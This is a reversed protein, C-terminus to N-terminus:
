YEDRDYRGHTGRRRRGSEDRGVGGRRDDRRPERQRESNVRAAQKVQFEDERTQLLDRAVDLAQQILRGLVDVEFPQVNVMGNETSYQVRQHRLFQGNRMKGFELSFQPRGQGDGRSLRVAVESQGTEDVFTKVDSWKLPPRTQTQTAEEM